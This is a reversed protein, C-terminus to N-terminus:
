ARWCGEIVASDVNTVHGKPAGRHAASRVTFTNGSVSVQFDRAAIGNVTTPGAVFYRKVQFVSHAAL